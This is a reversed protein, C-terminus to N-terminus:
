YSTAVETWKMQPSKKNCKPSKVLDFIGITKTNKNNNNLSESDLLFSNNEHEKIIPVKRSWDTELSAFIAIYIYSIMDKLNKM